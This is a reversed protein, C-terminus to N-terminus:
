PATFSLSESKLWHTWRVTESFYFQLSIFPLPSIITIMLNCQHVRYGPDRELIHTCHKNHTIHLTHKNIYHMYVYM